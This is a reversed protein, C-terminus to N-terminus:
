AGKPTTLPLIGQMAKQRRLERTHRLYARHIGNRVTLVDHGSWEGHFKFEPSNLDLRITLKKPKELDAFLGDLDQEQIEQKRPM